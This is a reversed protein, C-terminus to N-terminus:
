RILVVTGHSVGDGDSASLINTSCSSTPHYVYWVFTGSGCPVGGFTGDWAYDAQTTGQGFFVQQGWRNFVRFEAGPYDQLNVARFFDNKGDGDPTFGSPVFIKRPSRIVAQVQNFGTCGYNTNTVTYNYTHTFTNPAPGNNAPATIGPFIAYPSSTTPNNLYTSPSWSFNFNLSGADAPDSYLLQYRGTLHGSAPSGNCSFFDLSNALVELKQVYFTIENSTVSQFPSATEYARIRYLFVGASNETYSYNATTAGNINQWSSGNDASREWQYSPVNFPITTPWSSYLNVVGNDCTKTKDVIASNSFSAIIGPYCPAFSIDDIVFDNGVNNTNPGRANVIVVQLSTPSNPPLKFM